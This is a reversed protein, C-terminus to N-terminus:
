RPGSGAAAWRRIHHLLELRDGLVLHEDDIVVEDAALRLVDLAGLFEEAGHDLGVGALFPDTLGGDVDGVVLFQEVQGFLGTADAEEDAEFRGSGSPRGSSPLFDDHERPAIDAAETSRIRRCPMRTTPENMM